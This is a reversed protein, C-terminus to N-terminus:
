SQIHSSNQDKEDPPSSKKEIHNVNMISRAGTPIQFILEPFSKNTEKEKLTQLYELIKYGKLVEKADAHMFWPESHYWDEDDKQVKVM